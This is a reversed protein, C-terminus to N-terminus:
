EESTETVTARLDGQAFHVTIRDGRAADAARRLRSGSAAHEVIAYGRAMIARPDASSLAKHQALLRERKLRVIQGLARAARANLDDLRQRSDGIRRRPSLTMLFRREGELQRRRENLQGQIGEALRAQYHELTYRLDDMNPTAVEAAASPTPARQDAVFDVITFDIEHGVGSVVPIPSDAVAHAVREDNFAWLDELSGGGRVLLIVDVRARSVRELAAVIQPPADDGQVLTPSLIVEALPFRRRLVNQVDQFAAATPSTVVGIRRPFVPLPRKRAPDFLGEEELRAKLLEFRAHLDGRGAPTLQDVYLQYQGSAEYVSVYGHVLVADGHRPERARFTSGKWMVCKLTAGEDKLTFYWHGSRAATFNSVEGQVWVDQMRLDADFLTRIYATISSITYADTRNM